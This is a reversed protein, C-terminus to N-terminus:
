KQVARIMVNHIILNLKREDREKREMMVNVAMSAISKVTVYDTM